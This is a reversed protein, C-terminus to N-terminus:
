NSEIEWIFCGRKPTFVDKMESDRDINPRLIFLGKTESKVSFNQTRPPGMGERKDGKERKKAASGGFRVQALFICLPRNFKPQELYSFRIKPALQWYLVPTRPLVERYETYIKM